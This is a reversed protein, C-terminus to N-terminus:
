LMRCKIKWTTMIDNKMGLYIDAEELKIGNRKSKIVAHLILLKWHTKWNVKYICLSLLSTWEKAKQKRSEFDWDRKYKRRSEREWRDGGELVCDCTDVKM